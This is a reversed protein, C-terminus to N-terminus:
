HRRINGRRSCQSACGYENLLKLRSSVSRSIQDCGAGTDLSIFALLKHPFSLAGVIQEMARPPRAHTLTRFSPKSCGSYQCTVSCVHYWPPRESKMGGEIEGSREQRITGEQARM